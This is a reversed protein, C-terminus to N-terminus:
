SDPDAAPATPDADTRGFERRLSEVDWAGDRKAAEEERTERELISELQAIMERARTLYAKDDHRMRALERLGNEDHRRFTNAARHSQVAPMGLERLVDVGMQLSTDLTQRYVRDIGLELLEYAHIRGSARAMIRLHPFSKKVAQVLRLTLDPDELAIVLLRAQEAGAARLLDARTADGYFVKLGLRRLIEVRDSDVELVTAGVGNARLLRGVINGFDGFGAIIVPNEEDIADPPREERERTGLRPRLVREELLLLLPTLAMTVAVAAILPSAVESPIVRNQVAFSFLVFAFEGGQALALAFLLNQDFGMRSVRGLALLVLFKLLLLALVLQAILGPAAGILDFDISAGVAIFFVGLLLGKFPEIDSELEHRYESNALVVGALFTGLAPSLGVRTMLLAIGIVLLLAAATFVERLRARAIYRLVPRVLFLGAVVILLVAGLVALTQGWAPLGEVWSLSEPGHDSVAPAGHGAEMGPAPLTALLPFLALMPIVAIDQFLLVSFASQGGDSKLSGKEELTQLVIATSSLALAAGVAVSVQWRLGVALAVGAILAATVVVQSGGLGLIPGRLRWLLRPRLELGILFLMLVVGFEAFHMVDQGEEGVLRLVHPGIVIGGILYGLVSGLGLRRALPVCVVATALYVFTQEFIQQAAM